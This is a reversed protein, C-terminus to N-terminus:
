SYKKITISSAATPCRVARAGCLIGTTNAGTLAAWTTGDNSSEIAVSSQVFVPYSPLGYEVNQLMPFVEGPQLCFTPLAM